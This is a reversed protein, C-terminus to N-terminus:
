TKELSFLCLDRLREESPLHELCEYDKHGEVPCKGATGQREQIPSVLVPCLEESTAEGPCLVSPPHGGKVQQVSNKSCGKALM